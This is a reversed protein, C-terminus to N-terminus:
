YIKYEFKYGSLITADEKLKITEWNQKITWHSKVEIILNEKPIYIDPFYLHPKGDLGIYRIRPVDKGTLIEEELYNKLLDDLARNEYGQIRINKGSPYVYDKFNYGGSPYETGYKELCTKKRDAINLENQFHHETGYNRLTTNIKKNKVDTLQSINSVGYKRMNTEKQKKIINPIRLHHENGYKIINTKRTKIKKEETSLYSKTGYREVNTAEVKEKILPSANGCGGYKELCTIRFKERSKLSNCLSSCGKSCYRRISGNKTKGEVLNNCNSNECKRQEM